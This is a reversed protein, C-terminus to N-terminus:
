QPMTQFVSNPISGQMIIYNPALDSVEEPSEFTGDIDVLYEGVEFEQDMMMHNLPMIRPLPPQPPFIAPSLPMKAM